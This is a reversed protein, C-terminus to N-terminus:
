DGKYMKERIFQIAESLGQSIFVGRVQKWPVKLGLQAHPCDPKEFAGGWELGIRACANELEQWKSDSNKPWTPVGGDSWITWDTACGYNHASEGGRASTVIIGPAQRGVAYLTDQQEFTRLGWYPQWELKLEKCLKDYFPLYLINLDKRYFDRRDSNTM